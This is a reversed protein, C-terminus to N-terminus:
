RNAVVNFPAVNWPNLTKVGFSDFLAFRHNNVEPLSDEATTTTPATPMNQLDELDKKESAGIKAESHGEKQHAIQTAGDVGFQEIINSNEDYRSFTGDARRITYTGDVHSTRVTGDPKTVRVYEGPM